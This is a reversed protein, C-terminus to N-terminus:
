GIQNFHRLIIWIIIMRIKTNGAQQIYSIKFIKFKKPADRM